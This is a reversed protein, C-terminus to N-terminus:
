AKLPRVAVGNAEIEGTAPVLYGADRKRFRQIVVGKRIYSVIEVNAHDYLGFGTHPAVEDDNLVILNGIAQHTSNGYPGMAFHHKAKLWGAEAGSIEDFPKLTLMEISAARLSPAMGM